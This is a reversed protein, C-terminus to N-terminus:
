YVTRSRDFSRPPRAPWTWVQYFRLKTITAPVVHCNSTERAYKDEAEVSNHHIM